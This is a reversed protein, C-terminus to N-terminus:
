NHSLQLVPLSRVVQAYFPTFWLFLLTLCGKLQCPMGPKKVTIPLSYNYTSRKAKVPMDNPTYGPPSFLFGLTFQPSADRLIHGAWYCFHQVATHFSPQNKPYASKCSLYGRKPQLPPSSTIQDYHSSSLERLCKSSRLFDKGEVQETCFWLLPVWHVVAQARTDQVHLCCFRSSLAEGLCSHLHDASVCKPKSHMSFFLCCPIQLNPIHWILSSVNSLIFYLKFSNMSSNCSPIFEFSASEM